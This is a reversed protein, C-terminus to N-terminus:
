LSAPAIILTLKRSSSLLSIPMGTQLGSLRSKLHGQRSSSMRISVSPWKRPTEIWPGLKKFLHFNDSTFLPEEILIIDGRRLQQIAIAGYGAVASRRVEFYESRFLPDIKVKRVIEAASLTRASKRKEQPYASFCPEARAKHSSNKRARHQLLAKMTVTPLHNSDSYINGKNSLVLCFAHPSLTDCPRRVVRATAPHTRPLSLVMVTPAM